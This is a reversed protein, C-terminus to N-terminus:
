FSFLLGTLFVYGQNNKLQRADNSISAQDVIDNAKPQYSEFQYKTVELYPMLYKTIKYDLGFSIANYKNKQFNSTLYTISTALHGYEYEIGATHYTAASFAEGSNSGICDQNAIAVSKNYDCSYIGSKPQLSKGWNGYSAGITIGFYTAMIGIDFAQLNNRDITSASNQEFKGSEGTLSFGLGVNSDNIQDSYNIGYSIAQMIDNNNYSSISTNAGNNTDPAFSVGAQWGSIRPTYYSIKTADGLDGLNNNHVQSQSKSKNFGLKNDASSNNYNNDTALNYFGQAYGGHSIPSQPILIFRPLKINSCNTGSQTIIGSSNIRYGDCNGIKSATIQSSDALIPMNIYELYKGNIGGAGRAFTEPGVKMKYNVASNNGFELRGFNSESFIFAKDVSVNDNQLTSSANAELDITAGYKISSESANVLKIHLKAESVSDLNNTIKNETGTHNQVIGSIIQADPLQSNNFANDQTRSGINSNIFGSINIIPKESLINNPAEACAKQILVFLPVFLLFIKFCPFKM